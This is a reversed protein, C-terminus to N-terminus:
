IEANTADAMSKPRVVRPYMLSFGFANYYALHVQARGIPEADFRVVYTGAYCDRLSQHESDVGLWMLDLLLNFPGFLWLLMRFTMRVISPRQGRIGVIKLGTLRYGVTRWKSPKLVSLYVWAIALWTLLFIGSPDWRLDGITADWVFFMLGIWITLGLVVLIVSDIAIVMLRRVFGAYADDQYYVGEGLSNDRRRKV